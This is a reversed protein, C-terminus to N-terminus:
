KKIMNESMQEDIPQRVPYANIITYVGVRPDHYGVIVRVYRLPTDEEDNNYAYGIVKKMNYYVEFRGAVTSNKVLVPKETNIMKKLDNCFDYITSYAFWTKVPTEKLAEDRNWHGKHKPLAYTRSLQTRGYYDETGFTLLLDIVTCYDIIIKCINFKKPKSVKNNVKTM